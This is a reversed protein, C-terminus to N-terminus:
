CSFPDLSKELKVLDISFGEIVKSHIVMNEPYFQKYQGQELYYFESGNINDPNMIWYEKVGFKEYNYFKERIDYSFTGPSLVEVIFDPPGDVYQHKNIELKERSIFLIDPQYKLDDSFKVDRPSYSAIGIPNKRLFIGLEVYLYGSLKQHEYSPAPVVKMVGKIIEYQFGDDKLNLHENFTYKGGDYLPVKPKVAVPM